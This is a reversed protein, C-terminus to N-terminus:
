DCLRLLMLHSIEGDYTFKSNNSSSFNLWCCYSVDKELHKICSLNYSLVHDTECYTNAVTSNFADEFDDLSEECVGFQVFNVLAKSNCKICVQSNVTYYGDEQVTFCCYKLLENELAKSPDLEVKIIKDKPKGVHHRALISNVREFNAHNELKNYGQHISKMIYM